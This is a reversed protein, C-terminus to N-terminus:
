LCQFLNINVIGDSAAFIYVHIFTDSLIGRTM